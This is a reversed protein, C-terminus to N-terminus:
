HAQNLYIAWIRKTIMKRLNEIFEHKNNIMISTTQAAQVIESEAALDRDRERERERDAIDNETHSCMFVVMEVM